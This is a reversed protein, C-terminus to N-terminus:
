IRVAIHWNQTMKARGQKILDDWPTGDPLSDLRGAIWYRTELAVVKRNKRFARASSRCPFV